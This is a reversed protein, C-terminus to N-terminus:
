NKLILFRSFYINSTIMLQMSHYIGCITPIVLQEYGFLMKLKITKIKIM